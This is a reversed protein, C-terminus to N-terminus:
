SHADRPQLFLSEPTIEGECHRCGSKMRLPHGCEHRFAVAPTDVAWRDGWQLLGIMVPFLEQGAQTLHYEHRPPHESYQRREILGAAELKRLRDALIDRPAGTYGAIKAFRHVGYSMERLALLSWREGVIGLAAAISCPRVGVPMDAMVSPLPEAVAGASGTQSEGAQHPEVDM